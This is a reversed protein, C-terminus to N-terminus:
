QPFTLTVSTGIGPESTVVIDGGHRSMVDRCLSLGLGGGNVKTTFFPEFIRALVHAPMGEGRDVVQVVAIRCGAEDMATNGRVVVTQGEASAQSANLLLNVLVQRLEHADGRVRLRSSLAVELTQRRQHAYARCFDVADAVVAMLEVRETRSASTRGLTLLTTVVRNVRDIEDVVNDLLPKQEGSPIAGKNVSQVISRIAALPNRVEHAIGAAMQGTLSLTNTRAVSEARARELAADRATKLCKAIVSVSEPLSGGIPNQDVSESLSAWAILQKDVLLPIVATAGIDKLAAQEEVSLADFVGIADPVALPLANVRLWRPLLSDAGFHLGKRLMALNSAATPRFGAERRAAPEFLIGRDRGFAGLLDVLVEFAVPDDAPPLGRGAPETCSQAIIAM